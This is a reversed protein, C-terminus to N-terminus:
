IGEVDIFAELVDRRFFYKRGGPRRSSSILGTRAYKLLTPKSVRLLKCAEDTTLLSIDNNNKENKKNKQTEREDLVENFLRKFDAADYQSLIMKTTM